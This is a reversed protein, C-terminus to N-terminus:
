NGGHVLVLPHEVIDDPGHLQSVMQVHNEKKSGFVCSFCAEVILRRMFQSILRWIWQSQQQARKEKASM